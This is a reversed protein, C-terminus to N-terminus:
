VSKEAFYLIAIRAMSRAFAADDEPMMAMLQTAPIGSPLSGQEATAMVMRVALEDIDLQGMIEKLSM